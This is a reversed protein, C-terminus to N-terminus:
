EGELKCHEESSASSGASVGLKHMLYSHQKASLQKTFMDAVQAYSPVYRTEIEGAAVKDRIFHCDIEVHKTREHLVPNAAIALAAKNDCNLIAPPM